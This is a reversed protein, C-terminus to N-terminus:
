STNAEDEEHQHSVLPSAMPFHENSGISGNSMQSTWHTWHVFPIDSPCIFHGISLENPNAHSSITYRIVYQSRRGCAPSLSSPKGNSYTWQIWHIWQVSFHGNSMQSTWHTWHVFPIDLPCIFHGISLENRNAHPFIM